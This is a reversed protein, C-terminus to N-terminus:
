KKHHCMLHYQFIVFMALYPLFMESTEELIQLFAYVDDPLHEGHHAKRYNSPFRDIIKSFVGTTCLTAIGWTITDLKFFSKILPKTYQMALYIIAGFVLLLVAGFIIKEHVPNDPNLFFRSKFPTSDTESLFHQIGSERLFCSMALFIYCGWALMKDQFDRYCLALVFILFIYGIKAIVDIFRGDKTLALLDGAYFGYVAGVLSLWLILFFVPMFFPSLVIKKLM